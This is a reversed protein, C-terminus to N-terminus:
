STKYVQIEFTLTTTVTSLNNERQWLRKQKLVTKFLIRGQQIKTPIKQSIEVRFAKIAFSNQRRYKVSPVM